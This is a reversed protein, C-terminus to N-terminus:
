PQRKLLTKFSSMDNSLLVFVRGSVDVGNSLGICSILNCLLFFIVKHNLSLM